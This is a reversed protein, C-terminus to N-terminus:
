ATIRFECLAIAPKMGEREPVNKTLTFHRDPMGNVIPIGGDVMPAGIMRVAYGKVRLPIHLALQTIESLNLATDSVHPLIVEQEKIPRIEVGVVVYPETAIAFEPRDFPGNDCVGISAQKLQWHLPAKADPIVILAPTVRHNIQIDCELAADRLPKLYHRFSEKGMCLTIHYGREILTEIQRDLLQAIQERAEARRRSRYAAVEGEKVVFLRKGQSM